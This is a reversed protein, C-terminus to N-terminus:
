VVNRKLANGFKTLLWGLVFFVILILATYLAVKGYGGQGPDLFPYPYWGVFAGRILSYALYVVPFVLWVTTQKSTLKTRPPQYLWDLVVVVPMFYHLIFNVWPLNLGVNYGSLLTVYVVGTVAMYLVAAGRVLEEEPSPKRRMALYAAGVVFVSAALVNSLITFYSFFNVSNFVGAQLLHAIQVMIATFVVASVVLRAWVLFM